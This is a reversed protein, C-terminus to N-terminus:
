AGYELSILLKTLIEKDIEKRIELAMEDYIERLMRRMPRSLRYHRPYRSNSLDKYRYKKWSPRRRAKHAM